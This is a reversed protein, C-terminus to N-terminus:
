KGLEKVLNEAGYVKKLAEIIVSEAVSVCRSQNDSYVFSNSLSFINGDFVLGVVEGKSNILPSGSNGGVIDNTTVLNFPTMLDLRSKADKWSKPPDFPPTFKQLEAREFMGSIKTWAPITETGDKYGKVAGYSLRITFTADPYVNTGDEAFKRRAIESYAETQLMEVQKEHLERGGRSFPELQLVLQIMPDDSEEIAKVGGEILRKRESVDRLKSGRILDEAIQKPSKRAFDSDANRQVIEQIPETGVSVNVDVAIQIKGSMGVYGAKDFYTDQLHKWDTCLYNWLTGADIEQLMSLSDTLKMIEVDEYIPLDALLSKKLADIKEDRYEKLRKDNPKKLEYALRVLQRAIQFTRSNFGEGGEFFDNAFFIPRAAEISKAIKSEPSNPTDNKTKTEIIAPTQLGDLQGLARKRYNKIAGLDNAIRRRHEPSREAFTSYAVERRYLKQLRQPFYFDRQFELHERTLARETRGPFGSVFVLEDNEIPSNSWKLFHEIQAPKDNQYARFFTADLCYRPYEYNDPDGGFSAISEEPAWVLRVDTYVKYGYLHYKGGQYLKTVECRLGTKETSEKEIKAIEASQLDSSVAQVRETVDEIQAVVLMELGDCKLEEDNTKALFGTEFLDRDPTSLEQLTRAAVHHNTMILGNASVFSGTGRTAVRVTSLRLHELFAPTPDFGYVAKIQALPPNEYLWMGEDARVSFFSFGFCVLIVVFNFFSHKSM